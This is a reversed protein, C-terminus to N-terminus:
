GSGNKRRRKPKPEDQHPEAPVDEFITRVPIELGPLVNGDDLTHSERLLRSEHRGTYVRVTRKSPDVFWVLRVGAAFYDDLKEDMEKRTNGQSVVEVALDPVLNPVPERTMHRNPFRDWFIFAVDPIRVLGPVLRMTGDPGTVVGLERADVFNGLLRGILMALMSETLGRVKEVLIGDVLEYRRDERDHIEVVDAVTATGPAPEQRIRRAPIPGFRRYLDAVTMETQPRTVTAM